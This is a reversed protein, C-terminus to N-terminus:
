ATDIHLRQFPICRPHFANQALRLLVSSDNGISYMMVPEEFEAVVERLVHISEAELRRLVPPSYYENTMAVAM